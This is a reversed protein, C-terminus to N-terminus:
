HFTVKKNEMDRSFRLVSEFKKNKIGSPTLFGSYLEAKIQGIGGKKHQCIKPHDKKIWDIITDIDVPVGKPAHKDVTQKLHKQSFTKYRNLEVIEDRKKSKEAELNIRAGSMEEDQLALITPVIECEFWNEMPTTDDLGILSSAFGNDKNLMINVCNDEVNHEWIPGTPGLSETTINVSMARGRTSSNKRARRSNGKSSGASSNSKKGRNGNAKGTAKGSGTGLTTEKGMCMYLIHGLRKILGEELQLSKEEQKEVNCIKHLIDLLNGRLFNKMKPKIQVGSLLEKTPSMNFEEDFDDETEIVVQIPYNPNLMYPVGFANNSCILRGNRYWVVGVHSEEKQNQKPPAKCVSVAMNREPRGKKTFTLVKKDWGNDYLEGVINKYEIKEGNVVISVGSTLAKRYTIAVKEKTQKVVEEFNSSDLGKVNSFIHILGHNGDGACEMNWKEFCTSGPGQEEAEVDWSTSDGIKHLAASVTEQGKVRTLVLHKLTLFAAAFKCGSGFKGLDGHKHAQQLQKFLRGMDDFPLGTGDDALIIKGKNSTYDLDIDIHINKAQADISNDILDCLAAPIGSYGNYAAVATRKDPTCDFTKKRLNKLTM